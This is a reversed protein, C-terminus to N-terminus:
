LPSRQISNNTSTLLNNSSRGNLLVIQSNCTPVITNLHNLRSETNGHIVMQSAVSPGISM